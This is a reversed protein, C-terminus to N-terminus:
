NITKLLDMLKRRLRPSMDNVNIPTKPKSAIALMVANILEQPDKETLQVYKRIYEEVRDLLMQKQYRSSCLSAHLVIEDALTEDTITGDCFKSINCKLEHLIEIKQLEATLTEIERREM